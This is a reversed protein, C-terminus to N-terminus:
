IIGMLCQAALYLGFASIFPAAVSAPGSSLRDTMTDFLFTVVTFIVAGIVASKLAAMPVLFCAVWPFIGFILAGYLTILWFNRKSKGFLYFDLVLAGLSLLLATMGDLKMLIMRPLFARVLMASLMAAGTIVALLIGLMDNRKKM